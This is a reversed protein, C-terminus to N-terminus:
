YFKSTGDSLAWPNYFARYYAPDGESWFGPIKFKQRLDAYEEYSQTLLDFEFTVEAMGASASRSLLQVFCDYASFGNPYQHHLESVHGDLEKRLAELASVTKEWDAPQHTNATQLAESFQALVEAKGSKNSHLELCFPKLGIQSLRKHVVDLAAKKESVFLV